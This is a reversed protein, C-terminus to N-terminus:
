REKREFAGPIGMEERYKAVTRRAIKIGRKGLLQAIKSDSLPKKKDESEIIEKIAKKIVDVSTGSVSRKFFIKFPYVGFPTEVFKDKVARSITSEHISLRGAIERYSLPKIASEGHKLFEIQHSFVVEAIAKLTANRQEIAKKLNLARQYKENLYKKLKETDASRLYSSNIRFNFTKTKLIKVVPKGNELYVILDPTIRVTEVEIGPQPDLHKLVALFKELEGETLGTKELFRKRNKRLLELEDIAKLFKDDIGLEEAQVKLCEILSLSACGVPDFHLIRKRVSEVKCVPVSLFRAIEEVSVALFGKRDLNDIIFRAVEFDEKEFELSAQKLLRDRLSVPSAKISLPDFVESDDKVFLNGGDVVFDWVSENSENKEAAESQEYEIEILPNTEIEDKILNELELIPLQLLEINQLLVPTLKLELGLQQQLEPKIEM